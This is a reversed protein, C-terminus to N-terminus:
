WEDTNFRYQEKSKNRYNNQPVVTCTCAENTYSIYCASQVLIFQYIMNKRNAVWARYGGGWVCVCAKGRKLMGEGGIKFSFIMYSFEGSTTSVWLLLGYTCFYVVIHQFDGMIGWVSNVRNGSWTIKFTTRWNIAAGKKFNCYRQPCNIPFICWTFIITYKDKGKRAYILSYILKDEIIKKRNNKSILNYSYVHNIRDNTSECVTLINNVLTTSFIENNICRHIHNHWNCMMSKNSM